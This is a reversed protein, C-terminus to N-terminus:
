ESIKSVLILSSFYVGVLSLIFIGLMGREKYSHYVTILPTLWDFLLKLLTNFFVRIFSPSPDKKPATVQEVLQWQATSHEASFSTENNEQKAQEPIEAKLSVSQSEAPESQLSPNDIPQQALEKALLINLRQEVAEVRESFQAKLLILESKLTQNESDM